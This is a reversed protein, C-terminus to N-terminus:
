QVLVRIYTGRNGYGYIEVRVIPTGNVIRSRVGRGSSGNNLMSEMRARNSKSAFFSDWQDAPDRIGFRHFNARDQRIIAAANRLRIARSNFHDQSSLHATYSAILEQASVNSASSWLVFIAVLSLRSIQLM